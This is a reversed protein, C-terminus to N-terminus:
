CPYLSKLAVSVPALLGLSNKMLLDDLAVPALNTQEASVCIFREDGINHSHMHGHINLRFRSFQNPNIPIHTLICDRLTASGVVQSFYQLYDATPYRDHNGAVLKKLGKLRALIPLRSRDFCVDGLHWVTDHKKVERNWNEVLAEDHEEITKFPRKSAEFDLVKKHGFHTDAIVFIRNM